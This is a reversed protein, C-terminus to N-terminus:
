KARNSAVNYEQLILDNQINNFHLPSMEIQYLDTLPGRFARTNKTTMIIAIPYQKWVIRFVM